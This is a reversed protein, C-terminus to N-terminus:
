KACDALWQDLDVGSVHNTALVAGGGAAGGSSAAILAAPKLLTQLVNFYASLQPSDLLLRPAIVRLGVM